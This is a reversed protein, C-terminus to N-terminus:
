SVVNSGCFMTEFLATTLVTGACESTCNCDRLVSRAQANEVARDGRLCNIVALISDSTKPHEVPPKAWCVRSTPLAIKEVAPPWGTAWWLGLASGDEAAAQARPQCERTRV